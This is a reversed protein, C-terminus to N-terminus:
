FNLDIHIEGLTDFHSQLSHILSENFGENM